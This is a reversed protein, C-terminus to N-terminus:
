YKVVGPSNNENEFIYTYIDNKYKRNGNLLNESSYKKTLNINTKNTFTLYIVTSM